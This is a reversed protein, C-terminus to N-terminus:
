EFPTGTLCCGMCRKVILFDTFTVSGDGDLDYAPVYCGTGPPPTKACRLVLLCDAVSVITDDDVDPDCTGECDPCHDYNGPVGPDKCGGPAGGMVPTSGLLFDGGATTVPSTQGSYRFGGGPTLDHSSEGTNMNEAMESCKMFISFDDQNVKGDANVDYAPDSCKAGICRKLLMVDGITVRGDEDLDLRCEACDAPSKIDAPSGPCGEAFVIKVGTIGGMWILSLVLTMIIKTFICRGKM